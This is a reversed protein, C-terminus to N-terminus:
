DGSSALDEDEDDEGVDETDEGKSPKGPEGDIARDQGEAIFDPFYAELTEAIDSNLFEAWKECFGPIGPSLVCGNEDSLTDVGDGMCREEGTGRHRVAFHSVYEVVEFMPEDPKTM